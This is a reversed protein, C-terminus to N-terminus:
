SFHDAEEFDFVDYGFMVLNANGGSRSATEARSADLQVPL